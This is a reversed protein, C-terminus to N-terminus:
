ELESKLKLYDEEPVIESIDKKGLKEFAEPLTMKLKGIAVVFEAPTSPVKGDDTTVIDPTETEEETQPVVAGQALLKFLELQDPTLAGRLIASDKMTPKEASDLKALDPPNKLYDIIHIWNAPSIKKPLLERWKVGGSEQYTPAVMRSKLILGDPYRSKQNPTLWIRLTSQQSLIDTKGRPKYVGPVPQAGAYAQALQSTLIYLKAKRGLSQIFTSYARKIPGWKLGKGKDFQGRTYGFTEPNQEVWAQLADEFPVINDVVIVDVEGDPISKLEDEVLGPLGTVEGFLGFKELRLKTMNRYFGFMGGNKGLKHHQELSSEFDLVAIRKPDLGAEILGISFLSKGVGSPGTVHVMGNPQLLCGEFVEDYTAM